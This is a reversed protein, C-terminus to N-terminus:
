KKFLDSPFNSGYQKKLAPGLERFYLLKKGIGQAKAPDELQSPTFESLYGLFRLQGEKSVELMWKNEPQSTLDDIVQNQFYGDKIM